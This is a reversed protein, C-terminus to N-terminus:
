FALSFLSLDWWKTGKILIQQIRSQKSPAAGQHGKTNKCM